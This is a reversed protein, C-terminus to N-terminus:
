GIVQRYLRETEAQFAKDFRPSNVDNRPDRQRAALDARTVGPSGQEGGPKLADGTKFHNQLAVLARLGSATDALAHLENATTKDLVKSAVLGDVWGNAADVIPTIRAQLQEENMHAAEDGLFAKVEGVPNYPKPLMGKDALAEYLGGVVPGFMAAPVGAKLFMERAVGFVPDKALDGVFPKIKDSPEFKYDDVKEAPKFKEALTQANGRQKKWDDFLKTAFDEPKDAKLHEPIGDPLKWAGANAGNNASADTAGSPDGLQGSVGPAALTADGGAGTGDSGAAAAGADDPSRLPAFQILRQLSSIM